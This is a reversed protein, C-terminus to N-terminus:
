PASRLVGIALEPRGDRHRVEVFRSDWSMQFHRRLGSDPDEVSVLLPYDLRADIGYIRRLIEQYAAIM